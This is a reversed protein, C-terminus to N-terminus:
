TLSVVDQRGFAKTSGFRRCMAEGLIPNADLVAVAVAVPRAEQKGLAAAM